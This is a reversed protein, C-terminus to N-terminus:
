GLTASGVEGRRRATCAGGVGFDLFLFISSCLLESIPLFERGEAYM